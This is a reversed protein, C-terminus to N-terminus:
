LTVLSFKSRGTRKTLLHYLSFFEVSERGEVGRGGTRKTRLFHSRGGVVGM